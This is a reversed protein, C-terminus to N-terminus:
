FYPGYQLFAQADSRVVTGNAEYLSMVEAM